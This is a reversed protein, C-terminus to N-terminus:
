SLLNQSSAPFPPLGALVLACGMFCVGLIAITAPIAIGIEEEDEDEDEGYAERTVALMDAFPDRGREVLEILMFFAAIAVTSSVLYFLAAGTM